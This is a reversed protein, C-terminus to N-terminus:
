EQPYLLEMHGVAATCSVAAPCSKRTDQRATRDEGPLATDCCCALLEALRPRVSYPSLPQAPARYPLHRTFFSLFPGSQLWTSLFPSLSTTPLLSLFPTNPLLPLFVLCSHHLPSTCHLPPPLSHFFATVSWHTLSSPCSALPTSFTSFAPIPFCHLFSCQLTTYFLLLCSCGQGARPGSWSGAGM